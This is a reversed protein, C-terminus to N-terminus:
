KGHANVQFGHRPLMGFRPPHELAAAPVAISAKATTSASLYAEAGVPSALLARQEPAPACWGLRRLRKRVSKEDVGLRHAIARNSLGEAKLRAM